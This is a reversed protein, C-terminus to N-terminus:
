IKRLRLFVFCSAGAATAASADGVSSYALLRFLRLNRRRPPLPPHHPPPLRLRLPLILIFCLRLRLLSAHVQLSARPTATHTHGPPLLSPPVDIVPTSHIRHTSRIVLTSSPLTPYTHTKCPNQPDPASPQPHPNLTSLHTSYQPRRRPQATHHQIHIHIHRDRAGRNSTLTSPETSVPYLLVPYVREMEMM